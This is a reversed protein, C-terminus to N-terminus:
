GRRSGRAARSNTSTPTPASTRTSCVDEAEHDDRLISRAARYLRQNYRRMLEEFLAKEGARVREM